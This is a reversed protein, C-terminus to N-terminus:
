GGCIHSLDRKLITNILLQPQLLFLGSLLTHTEIHTNGDSDTEVEEVETKVQSMKFNYKDLIKHTM